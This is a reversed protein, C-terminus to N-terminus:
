AAQWVVSIDACWVHNPREIALDRLLYPFVAHAPHPVSTRPRQYGSVLGMRRMLRRVRKRGVCHGLRRLHRMMQRAGYFPTEMFQEDIRRM